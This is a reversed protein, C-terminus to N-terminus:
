GQENWDEELERIVYELEDIIEEVKMNDVIPENDGTPLMDNLKEICSQLSDILPKKTYPM